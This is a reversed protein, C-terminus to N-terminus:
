EELLPVSRYVDIFFNVLLPRVSDQAAVGKKKVKLLNQFDITFIPDGSM